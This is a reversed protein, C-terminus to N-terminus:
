GALDRLRKQAADTLDSITITDYGKMDRWRQFAYVNGVAEEREKPPIALTSLRLFKFGPITSIPIIGHRVKEGEEIALLSGPPVRVGNLVTEILTIASREGANKFLMLPQNDSGVIVDPLEYGRHHTVADLFYVEATTCTGIRLETKALPLVPSTTEEIPAILDLTMRGILQDGLPAKRLEVKVAEIKVPDPVWWEEPTVGDPLAENVIDEIRDDVQRLADADKAQQIQADEIAHEYSSFDGERRERAAVIEEKARLIEKRSMLENHLAADTSRKLDELEDKYQPFAELLRPLIVNIGPDRIRRLGTIRREQNISDALQRTAQLFGSGKRFNDPINESVFRHDASEHLMEELTRSLPWGVERFAHVVPVEERLGQYRERAKGFSSFDPRHERM